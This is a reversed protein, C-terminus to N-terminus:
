GVPRVRALLQERRIRNAADGAHSALPDGGLDTAPGDLVTRLTNSAAAAVVDDIARGTSRALSRLAVSLAPDETSLYAPDTVPGVEYLTVQELTRLPFGQDTVSWSDALVRFAFSSGRVIGSEVLAVLDRAYSTDPLDVTYLLGVTDVTVSLNQASVRGLVRSADHNWMSRIDADLTGNFAGPAIQEVFGGLNQSYRNFVAGYAQLSTRGSSARTVTAAPLNHAVRREVDTQTM